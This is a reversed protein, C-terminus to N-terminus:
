PEGFVGLAANVAEPERRVAEKETKLAELRTIAEEIERDRQSLVAFAAQLHEHAKTSPLTPAGVKVKQRVDPQPTTPANQKSHQYRIHGSLGQTNQFSKGCHPCKLHRRQGRRSKQTPIKKM